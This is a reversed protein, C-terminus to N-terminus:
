GSVERLPPLGPLEVALAEVGVSVRGALGWVDVGGGGEGGEVPREGLVGIWPLDGVGLVEGEGVRLAGGDLTVAWRDGERRVDLTGGDLAALGHRGSVASALLAPEGHRVTAEVAAASLWSEGRTLQVAPGDVGAVRLHGGGPAIHGALSGTVAGLGASTVRAQGRVTWGHGEPELALEAAEADLQMGPWLATLTLASVSVSPLAAEDAGDGEVGGGEGEGSGFLDALADRVEAAELRIEPAVVKVATIRPEGRLVSLPAVEVRLAPARVSAGPRSVRVDELTAGATDLRMAQWTVDVGRRGAAAQVRATVAQEILGPGVVLLAAVVLLGVVVVGVLVKRRRSMPQKM